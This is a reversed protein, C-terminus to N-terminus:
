IEIRFSLKAENEVFNKKYFKGENKLITKESGINDEDCTVLVKTIGMKKTEILALELIKTAYGKRRELPRIGYGIHGGEKLLNDNLRHRINVVGLIKNEINILWFTSHPVFSEPIDIGKEFGIIQEIFKKFDKTDYKLVFPVLQEGTSHWEELMQNYESELIITPKILKLRDM